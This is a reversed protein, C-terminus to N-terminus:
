FSDAPARNKGWLRKMAAAAAPAYEAVLFIGYVYVMDGLLTNRFFPLAMYYSAILGNLTQPYMGSFRWVAVNTILYFIVSSAIAAGLVRWPFRKTKLWRGLWATLLLSGYVSAMIPWQYFGIVSDAALMAAVPVMFAWVGPLMAGALLAVAAIPTVNPMHPVLRLAASFAILILILIIHKSKLPPQNM